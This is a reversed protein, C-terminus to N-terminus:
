VALGGMSTGFAIMTVPASALVEVEFYKEKRATPLRRAEQDYVTVSQTPMTPAAAAPSSCAYINLTVPYRDAYVRAAVPDFPSSSVYRKSRWRMMKNESAGEWVYVADTDQEFAMYVTLASSVGFTYAPAASLLTGGTAASYWGVFRHGGSPVATVTLSTGPRYDYAVGGAGNAGEPHFFCGGQTADSGSRYEARVRVPATSYYIAKFKLVGAVPVAVAPTTAIDEYTGEVWEEGVLTVTKRQWKMFVGGTAPLTMLGGVGVGTVSYFKDSSANGSTPSGGLAVEFEDKTIEEAGAVTLTSAGAGAPETLVAVYGVPASSAFRAVYSVSAAVPLVAEPGMDPLPASFGTDSSLFWGSFFSGEEPTARWTVPWGCPQIVQVAADTAGTALLAGGADYLAAGGDAGSALSVKLSLEASFSLMVATDSTVPGLDAVLYGPDYITLATAGAYARYPHYNPDPEIIVRVATGYPLAETVPVWEAGDYYELSGSGYDSHDAVNEPLGAGAPIGYGLSVTVTLPEFVATVTVESMLTFTVSGPCAAGGQPYSVDYESDAFALSWSAIRWGAAARATATFVKGTLFEGEENDPTSPDLVIDCGATSAGEDDPVSLIVSRYEIETFRATLSVGDASTYYTRTYSPQDSVLAGAATFWGKFTHTASNWGSVSATVSDPGYFNLAFSSTASYTFVGPPISLTMTVGELDSAVAINFIPRDTMKPYVATDVDAPATFVFSEEYTIPQTFGSDAFWGGWTISGPYSINVAYVEGPYVTGVANVGDTRASLITTGNHSISASAGPPVPGITCPRTPIQSFEAAISVSSSPMTFTKPNDTGTFTGSWGAFTYGNAPTASVTVSTGATVTGSPPTSSVTGAGSGVSVSLTSTDVAFKAVYSTNAAFTELAATPMTSPYTATAGGNKFWGSFRYGTKPTATAQKTQGAEFYSGSTWGSLAVTGKTTSESSATLSWKYQEFTATYTADGSVGTLTLSTSTSGGPSWSALRHNATAPTATLTISGGSIVNGGGSVSGNAGASATITYVMAMASTTSLAGGKSTALTYGAGITMTSPPTYSINTYTSGSRWYGSGTYWPTYVSGSQTSSNYSFTATSAGYALITSGAILSNAAM